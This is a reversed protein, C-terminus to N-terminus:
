ALSSAAEGERALRERQWLQLLSWGGLVEDAILVLAVDNLSSVRSAAGLRAHLGSAFVAVKHQQVGWHQLIVTDEWSAAEPPLGLAQCCNKLGVPNCAANRWQRNSLDLLPLPWAKLSRGITVMDDEGLGYLVLRQLQRLAPLACALTKLATGDPHGGASMGFSLSCLATLSEISSPVDTLWCQELSLETLADLAGISIPLTKLKPLRILALKRLSTLADFSTPLKRLKRCGAIYLIELSPLKGISPLKTFENCGVLRLERLGMLKGISSPLQTLDDLYELSLHQLSTMENFSPLKELACDELKLSTLCTMASMAPMRHLYDCSSIHLTELSTLRLLIARLNDLEDLNGLDLHKIGWDGLCMPLEDVCCCSLTISRLAPMVRMAPLKQLVPCNQINLTELSTLQAISEPLAALAGFNKIILTKLAELCGLSVPLETLSNDFGNDFGDLCLVQLHVLEGLCEPVEALFLCEMQLERVEAQLLWLDEPVELLGVYTSELGPLLKNLAQSTLDVTNARIGQMDAIQKLLPAFAKNLAEADFCLQQADLVERLAREYPALRSLDEASPASPLAPKSCPVRLVTYHERGHIDRVRVRLQRDFEGAVPLLLAAPRHEATM